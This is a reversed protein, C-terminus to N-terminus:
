NAPRRLRSRKLKLPRADAQRQESLVQRLGPM